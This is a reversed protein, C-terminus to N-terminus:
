CLILFLKWYVDSESNHHVTVGTKTGIDRQCEARSVAGTAQSWSCLSGCVGLM